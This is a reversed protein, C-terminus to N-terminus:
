FSRCKKIALLQWHADTAELGRNDLIRACSIAFRHCRRIQIQNLRKNDVVRIKLQHSSLPRISLVVLGDKGQKRYLIAEHFTSIAFADQHQNPIVLLGAASVVFCDDATGRSAISRQFFERAPKLYVGSSRSSM